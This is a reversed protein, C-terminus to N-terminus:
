FRMRNRAWYDFVRFSHSADVEGLQVEVSYYTDGDRALIDLSGSRPASLEQAVIQVEGLGLIAPDAALWNQLWIEDYGLDRLQAPKGAHMPLRPLNNSVTVVTAIQHVSTSPVRRHLGLSCHGAQLRFSIDSRHMLSGSSVTMGGVPDDPNGHRQCRRGCTCAARPGDDQDRLQDGTM